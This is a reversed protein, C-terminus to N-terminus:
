ESPNGSGRAAVVQGMREKVEAASPRDKPNFAWCSEFLSWLLDAHGNQSPIHAEPRTPLTKNVVKKVFIMHQSTGEYPASGTVAELMTMGLSYVDSEMTPHDQGILMEPAVWNLSIGASSTTNTFQLTYEKLSANGFDTLKPIFDASVLINDCKLDGHVMKESHMYAVGDTIQVCLTYRDFKEQHFLLRRLSGREMWPSVMAIQDRYLAVGTLGLVNPHKCKSWVYLERAARKLQKKTPESSDTHLRLCKVAVATGDRFAGRYVDGYGGSSIPYKSFNSTDLQDTVDECGHNGLLHLVETTSMERSVLPKDTVNAEDLALVSESHSTFTKADDGLSPHPFANSTGRRHDPSDARLTLPTIGSVVTQTGPDEVPQKNQEPDEQNHEYQSQQPSISVEPVNYPKIRTKDESLTM